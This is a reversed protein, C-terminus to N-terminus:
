QVHFSYALLAALGLIGGCAIVWRQPKRRVQQFPNRPELFLDCVFNRGGMHRRIQLLREFEALVESKCVAADQRDAPSKPM